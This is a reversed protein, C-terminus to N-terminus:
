LFFYLWGDIESCVLYFLCGRPSSVKYLNEYIKKMAQNVPTVSFGWIDFFRAIYIAYLLPEESDESSSMLLYQSLIKSYKPLIKNKPIDKLNIIDIFIWISISPQTQILLIKLIPKRNKYYYGLIINIELLKKGFIKFGQM